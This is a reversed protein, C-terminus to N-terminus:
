SFAWRKAGAVSCSISIACFAVHCLFWEQYHILMEPTQLFQEPGLGERREGLRPIKNLRQRPERGVPQSIFACLIHALIKHRCEGSGFLLLIPRATAVKLGDHAVRRNQVSWYVGSGWDLHM